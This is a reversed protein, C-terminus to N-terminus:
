KQKHGDSCEGITFKVILNLPFTGEKPRDEIYQGDTESPVGLASLGNYFLVFCYQQRQPEGM